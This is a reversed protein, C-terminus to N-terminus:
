EGTFSHGLGIRAYYAERVNISKWYRRGGGKMLTGAGRLPPASLACADFTAMERWYLPMLMMPM